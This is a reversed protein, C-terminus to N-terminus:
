CRSNAKQQQLQKVIFYVQVKAPEKEEMHNQIKRAMM